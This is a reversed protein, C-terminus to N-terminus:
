CLLHNVMEKIPISCTIYDCQRYILVDCFLISKFAAISVVIGGICAFYYVKSPGTSM